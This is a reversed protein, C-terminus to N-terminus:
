RQGTAMWVGAASIGIASVCYLARPWQNEAASAVVIVAYFVMLAVMLRTSMM